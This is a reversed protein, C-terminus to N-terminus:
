KNYLLHADLIPSGHDEQSVFVGAVNYYLLSAGDVAILRQETDDYLLRSADLGNILPIMSNNNYTYRFIGTEHAIYLTNADAFAVDRIEGIPVTNPEWYSNGEVDYIEFKGQGGNNTFVYVETTNRRFMQVVTGNLPADEELVGSSAFYTALRSSGTAIPQQEVLLLDGVVLLKGPHFGSLSSFSTKLGGFADYGKVQGADSLSTYTLLTSRSFDVDLFWNFPSNSGIPQTWQEVTGLSPSFSVLDGQTGGAVIVQQHYSNVTAAGFNYNPFSKLPQIGATLDDIHVELTNSSSMSMIVVGSLVRNVEIVNIEVFVSTTNFGDSASVKAYYTGSTLHIDELTIGRSFDFTNGEPTFSVPTEVPILDQNLVQLTVNVLDTEDEAVGTFMVPDFVNIYEFDNPSYVTVLPKTTDEEKKCSSLLLCLSYLVVQFKLRM